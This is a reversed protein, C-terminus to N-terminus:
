GRRKEVPTRLIHVCRIRSLVRTADALLDHEERPEGVFEAAPLHTTM